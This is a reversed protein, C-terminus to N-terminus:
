TNTSDCRVSGRHFQFGLLLITLFHFSLHVEDVFPELATVDEPISTLWQRKDSLVRFGIDISVEDPWEIVAAVTYTKLHYQTKRDISLTSSGYQHTYNDFAVLARGSSTVEAIKETGEKILQNKITDYNILSPALGVYNCLQRGLRSLGRYEQLMMWFTLPLVVSQNLNHLTVALHLWFPLTYRKNMRSLAQETLISNKDYCEILATADKKKGSQLIYVEMLVGGGLGLV